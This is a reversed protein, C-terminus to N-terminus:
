PLDAAEAHIRLLEPLTEKPRRGWGCETAIGYDSVYRSATEMRKRTGEVGDTHHVLGQLLVALPSKTRLRPMQYWADRGARHREPVCRILGHRTGGGALHGAEM